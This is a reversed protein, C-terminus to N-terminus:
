RAHGDNGAMTIGGFGATGAMPLLPLPALAVGACGGRFEARMAVSLGGMDFFGADLL